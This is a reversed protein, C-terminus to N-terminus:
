EDVKEAKGDEILIRAIQVPLNAIQGKKFGGMMEGDPGLFEEVDKKFAVMENKLTESKAGNFSENFKKDSADINKMIEEFLEKEFDLMNDFDRKSIGTESAILVLNLIKKRRIRKLENFLVVATEFQKKTKMIMDSFADDEKSSMEKKEKLYEAVNAIFNKPLVQLQESYREKKAAEYIENYTIM